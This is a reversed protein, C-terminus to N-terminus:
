KTIKCNPLAQKLEAVGAETVQTDMLTLERLNTLGKLHLLGEDTIETQDLWLKRLKKLGRLHRLGADTIQTDILNLEKLKPLGKIHVLEADTIRQNKALSVAVVDGQEDQEIEPAGIRQNPSGLKKLAVVPDVWFLPSWDLAQQRVQDSITQDSRIVGQLADLSKVQSRKSTLLSRAQSQARLEPTWSRADWVMVTKDLSASALRTGAPSFAVSLIWSTHGELTLLEQGTVVDWVKIKGASSASALRSGNPSFAVSLVWGVHGKLTLLEQATAVAWVKVLGDKSASALRTGDPSFSVGSVQSKHGQLTHLEQGTAADWVKVTSDGSASALRKGDPSYSLRWIKGSHGQMTLLERGTAADWVKVSADNGASALRTGDPSFRIDVVADAHGKLTLTEQGTAADWVKVTKDRSASALRSGDPSFCVGSVGGTHGKLTLTAQGTATDWVKVTKDLSASALRTGDPSFSAGYAQNSHGKLTLTERNTAVDWVKVTTDSSTSALRQGDPSFSVGNVAAKLTLTEQGTTADWLRITKDGSSSAIQKGNPSFHVSTVSSTHGKITHLERGTAADWLKITKDWSSSAIQKGNPSFHVSSVFKTHGKLTRTEQGTTADWLRITKDGSSSAIQKGNPSFHVSSVVKTHGKLTRTEQGTAVDWLMIRKDFGGYSAIQKGDSSFCVSRPGGINLTHLERGTAADWLRITKDWSSSAIQKGDPSFRVSIVSSTHGKITHLERGTAADWVKVTKDRSASALRSGDPSFCVDSVGDTHGKLTLLQCNVLRDWYGWEFGKLESRDRHRDLIGRLRQINVDEWDRAALILDSTYASREAEATKAVAIREAARAREAEQSALREAARAKDAEESALREAIVALQRQNNILVSSVVAVLAIVALSAGIAQVKTRHKRMWRGLRENWSGAYVTVPEDALWREVDSALDSATSYREEVKMRMARLCIAELARPVTPEIDSPVPVAGTIVRDLLNMTSEPQDSSHQSALSAVSQQGTATGSRLERRQWRQIQHSDYSHLLAHPAEGTLIEFLMAGLSYVDTRPEIAEIKGSAQEPAMYGPTGMIRGQITKGLDIDDAIAVPAHSTETEVEGLVKALGWDLVMLEGFEGVAVNEPKLDRHVVSRNHAYSIAQCTSIFLTLLRRLELTDSSRERRNQHYGQILKRFEQGRVYKMTYYPQGDAGRGAQYIPVINPHELQSNVQAEQVFRYRAESHEDGADKLTKLVVARQLEDDQAVYVKGLGGEALFRTVTHRTAPASATEPSTTPVKDAAPDSKRQSAEGTATTGLDMTRGLPEATSESTTNDSAANPSDVTAGPDADTEGSPLNADSLTKEPAAPDQSASSAACDASAAGLTQGASGPTVDITADSTIETPDAQDPQDNVADSPSASSEDHPRKSM